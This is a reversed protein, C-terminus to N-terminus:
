RKIEEPTAGTVGSIAPIRAATTGTRVFSTGTAAYNVVTEGLRVGTRACSQKHHMMADTGVFIACM